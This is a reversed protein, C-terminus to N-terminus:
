LESNLSEQKTKFNTRGVINEGTKVKIRLRKDIQKNDQLLAKTATQGFPQSTRNDSHSRQQGSQGWVLQTASTIVHLVRIHTLIM